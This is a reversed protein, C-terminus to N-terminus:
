SNKGGCTHECRELQLKDSPVVVTQKKIIEVIAFAQATSGSDSFDIVTGEVESELSLARALEDPSPLFSSSVLFTVRDGKHTPTRGPAARVARRQHRWRM